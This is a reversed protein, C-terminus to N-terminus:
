QSKVEVFESETEVLVGRTQKDAAKVAEDVDYHFYELAKEQREKKAEVSESSKRPRLTRLASKFVGGKETGADGPAGPTPDVSAGTTLEGTVRILTNLQRRRVHAFHFPVPRGTYRGLDDKVDLLAQLGTFDVTNVASFDLVVARLPPLSTLGAKERKLVRDQTDDSWLKDGKNPQSTNTYRYENLVLDKLQEVFYNSNPYTLSENIQYVLIGEPTTSTTAAAAISLKFKESEPDIWAGSNDRALTNFKPRAIRFLLVVLSYGVSAYIGNELNSFICVVFAVLFGIFDLIEVELLVFVVDFKAVLESIATIVIASLTASPIYYLAPTLTFLGIVVVIGTLFSAAPSRVGSASKIASRSFSGTCPFAGVFSGVCNALGIAVIEQNANVTYGNVRGYTKVVAIHELVAVLFIGPVAPFVKAALSLSLDPQQISSLGFPINKVISFTLGSNRLGYSIGIYIALVITNRLFGVYKLWPYKKAGYATGSKLLLIFVVASVGFIADYKSTLHLGKFFDIVVQYPANNTNVGPIGFLGPFQQIIAQLGAGTTFGAIVPVPVFDVLMGFRFLGLILQIIGTWFALAIAFVVNEAQSAGPNYQALTQGVVLSLVATPGMTVDKSTAFLCYLLAGIFSTYLGYQAPLGALKTAYSISQPIAVLGVTVGAIFDGAAWQLNYRPLWNFIPFLSTLYRVPAGAIDKTGNKFVSKLEEVPTIPKEAYVM